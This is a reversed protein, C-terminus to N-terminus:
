LHFRSFIVFTLFHSGFNVKSLRESLNNVFQDIDEESPYDTMLLIFFVVDFFM